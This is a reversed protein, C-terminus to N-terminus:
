RWYNHLLIHISIYMYNFPIEEYVDVGSYDLGNKRYERPLNLYLSPAARFCPPKKRPFNTTSEAWLSHYFPTELKSFKDRVKQIFRHLIKISVGM